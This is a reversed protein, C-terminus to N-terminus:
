LTASDLQALADVAVGFRGRLGDPAVKRGM